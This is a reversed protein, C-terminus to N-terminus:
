ARVTEERSSESTGFKLHPCTFTESGCGKPVTSRQGLDEILSSQRSSSKCCPWCSTGGSVDTEEFSPKSDLYRRLHFFVTKDQRSFDPRSGNLLFM